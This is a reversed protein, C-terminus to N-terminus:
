PVARQLPRQAIMEAPDREALPAAVKEGVHLTAIGGMLGVYRVSGFGNNVFLTALSAPDPFNVLSEPLYKYAARDGGVVGGILPVLGYFYAAFMQRWIRNPPRGVELNVFRAGPVLVRAVERLCAGIDTVNRMSFGMVAGDFEGSSFPLRTVDAEVYEITRASRRARAVDLMARSFDVGVVRGDPVARAAAATLVGTGCCLDLIAGDPRVNVERLARRRWRADFGGTMVTNALDYRRAIRDFMDRVASGKNM